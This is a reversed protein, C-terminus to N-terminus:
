RRRKWMGRLMRMLPAFTWGGGVVGDKVSGVNKEGDDSEDLFIM